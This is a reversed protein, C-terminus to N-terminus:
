PKGCSVCVGPGAWCARGLMGRGALGALCAGFSSVCATPRVCRPRRVAHGTTVRVADGRVIYGAGIGRGVRMSQAAM